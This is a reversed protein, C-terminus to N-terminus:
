SVQSKKVCTYVAEVASAKVKATAKGTAKGTAKAAAASSHTPYDM